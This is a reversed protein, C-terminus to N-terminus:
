KQLFHAVAACSKLKDLLPLFLAGGLPGASESNTRLSPQPLRLEFWGSNLHFSLVQSASRSHATGFLHPPFKFILSTITLRLLSM